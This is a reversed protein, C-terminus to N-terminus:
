WFPESMTTWMLTKWFQIISDLLVPFKINGTVPLTCMCIECYLIELTYEM